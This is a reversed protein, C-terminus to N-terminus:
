RPSSRPALGMGSAYAAPRVRRQMAAVGICARLVPLSSGGCLMETRIQALVSTRLGLVVCPHLYLPMLVPSPIFISPRTCTSLNRNIVKSKPMHARSRLAMTRSLLARLGLRGVEIDLRMRTPVYRVSRRLAGRTSSTASYALETGLM